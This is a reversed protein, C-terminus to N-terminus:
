KKKAAILRLEHVHPGEDHDEAEEIVKNELIEYGQFYEELDEKTFYHAIRGKRSEFTNKEVEEGKGYSFDQESFVVFAAIGMPKLVSNIELMMRMREQKSFLHLVNFCFIGDFEDEEFPMELVSGLFYRIRLNKEESSKKAMEIATKSIDMGFVRFGELALKESNRGYGCGPVLVKVASNEMFFKAAIDASPSPSEGWIKGEKQFREEWFEM